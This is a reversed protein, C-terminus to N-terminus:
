QGTTALLYPDTMSRLTRLDDSIKLDFFEWNYTVINNKADLKAVIGGHFENPPRARYLRELM